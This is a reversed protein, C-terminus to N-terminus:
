CVWVGGYYGADQCAQDCEEETVLLMFIGTNCQCCNGDYGGKLNVLEDNKIVKETDISLKKLKKM